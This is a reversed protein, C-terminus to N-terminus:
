RMRLRDFSARYEHLATAQTQGPSHPRRSQRTWPIAAQYAALSLAAPLAM